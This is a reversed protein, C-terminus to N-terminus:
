ESINEQGDDEFLSMQGKIQQSQTSKLRYGLRRYEDYVPKWIIECQKRENPFYKDLIDLEEQLNLAFPCGKCGTRYFNYPAKYIDCIRIHHTDIFWEEWEKTVPVLPQFNKLRGKKFVLCQSIERQGGEDRMIGVITYKKGNQVAWEQMPEEKLRVCCKHSIKLKCEDTFQYKLINPCSRYCIGEIYRKQYKTIVHSRQYREVTIAHRKSKFPYGDKELTQKIPIRPKIVEIRRDKKQLDLVFDRIMNLEIGTNAYVRPIQNNPIAMDVLASLVTSDKGGSFSIYFNEEGYQGIIQQIKQLRAGSFFDKNEMFFAKLTLYDFSIM